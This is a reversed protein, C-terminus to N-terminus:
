DRKPGNDKEGCRNKCGCYFCETTEDHDCDPWTEADSSWGFGCYVAWLSLQFTIYCTPELSFTFDIDRHEPKEVGIRGDFRGYRTVEEFGLESNEEYKWFLWNLILVIVLLNLLM